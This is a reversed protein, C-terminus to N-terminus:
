RPSSTPSPDDAALARRLAGALRDRLPDHQPGLQHRADYRDPYRWVSGLRYEDPEWSYRAHVHGHLHPWSNGLIEYNTRLFGQDLEACAQAVAEGLISLELLFLMREPRPLDTLHSAPGGYLLLCYGPLHQTDGIVAWGTTM